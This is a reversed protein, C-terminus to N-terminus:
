TEFFLECHQATQFASFYAEELPIWKSQFTRVYAGCRKELRRLQEQPEVNLFVRLDYYPRLASHCSYSGEVAIVPANAVTVPAGLEMSACDFPRYVACEGRHLPRLIEAEFREHDINEGPAAYRAESRQEPRLFFDDMHLVPWGCQQHLRAALTTKGSACRGEIAVLLPRGEPPPLQRVAYRIVATSSLCSRKLVRYAPRYAARYRGSHSVAPFGAARYRALYADLERGSFFFLGQGTLTRLLELKETFRDLSGRCLAASRVFGDNLEELPYEEPRLAALMVRVIGSGIEEILPAAPDPTVAAFESRLRILSAAPDQILHGGGFENQYLLKVADEPQMEPCRAAHATLVATLECM